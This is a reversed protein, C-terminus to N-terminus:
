RCNDLILGPLPVVLHGNAEIDTAQTSTAEDGALDQYVFKVVVANSPIGANRSNFTWHTVGNRGVISSVGQQDFNLDFGDTTWFYYSDEEFDGTSTALFSVTQINGGVLEFGFEEDSPAFIGGSYFTGHSNHIMRSFGGDDFFEEESGSCFWANATTHGSAHGIGQNVIAGHAAFSASISLAASVCLTAALNRFNM